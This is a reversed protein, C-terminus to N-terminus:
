KDEGKLPNSGWMSTRSHQSMYSSKNKSGGHTKIYREEESAGSINYPSNPRFGYQHKNSGGIYSHSEAWDNDDKTLPYNNTSEWKGDKWTSTISAREFPKWVTNSFFMGKELEVFNGYRTISGDGKMVAFRDSPDVINLVDEGYRWVLYAIARSDSWHSGPPVKGKLSSLLLEKWTRITGNHAFVMDLDKMRLDTQVKETVPFPHCLEPVKDGITAFRFHILMPLKIARFHEEMQDVSLGKFLQIKGNYAFALGNGDPNSKAAQELVEKAPLGVTSTILLCM